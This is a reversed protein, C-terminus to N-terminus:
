DEWHPSAPRAQFLWATTTMVVKSFFIRHPSQMLAASMCTLDAFDGASLGLDTLPDRRHGDFGASVLLWTPGFREVAPIVVEDFALRYTDGNTGKPFPFNITTGRGKGEGVEELSGTGPYWPYQHM